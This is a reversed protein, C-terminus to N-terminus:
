LEDRKFWEGEALLEPSVVPPDLLVEPPLLLEPPDVVPFEALRVELDPKYSSVRTWSM